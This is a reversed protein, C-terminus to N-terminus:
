SRVKDIVADYIENFNSSLHDKPTLANINALVSVLHPLLKRIEVYLNM